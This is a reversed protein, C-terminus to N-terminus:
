LQETSLWSINLSACDQRELCCVLSLVSIELIGSRPLVSLTQLETNVHTYKLKLQVIAYAEWFAALPFKDHIYDCMLLYSAQTNRESNKFHWTESQLFCDVVIHIANLPLFFFFVANATYYCAKWTVYIKVM